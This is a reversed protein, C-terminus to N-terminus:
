RRKSLVTGQDGAAWLVGNRDITISHLNHTTSSRESTWTTGDFHVITGNNGVAWLEDGEGTIDDLSYAGGSMATSWANGNWHIVTGISGVAWVNDGDTGWVARLSASQIGTDVTLWESGDWHLATADDGVAWFDDVAFGWVDRLAVNGPTDIATWTGAAQTLALGDNGVIWTSGAAGHVSRLWTDGSANPTADTWQTGDFRMVTGATGVAWLMNGDGWIGYLARQTPPMTLSWGNDRHSIVEDGAIWLTNSPDVFTSLRAARSGASLTQRAGDLWRQMVGGEAVALVDNSGVRAAGFFTATLNSAARTWQGNAYSWVKGDDGFAWASPTVEPAGGDPTAADGVVGADTVNSWMSTAVVARAAGVLGVSAESWTTGDWHTAGSNGVAWIDDANLGQIAFLSAGIPSAAETWTDGDFHLITGSLGVAWVDDNTSGWLGRLGLSTPITEVSFSDGNFHFMRGNDGAFWVDDAAAGWIARLTRRIPPVVADSDPATSVESWTTGDFHIVVGTEGAAWIDDNAIGFVANLNVDTVQPARSWGIGDYHLVVGGEGVAWVNSMTSAWVGLLTHGQPHPLEWCWGDESCVDRTPPPIAADIGADIDTGSDFPVIADQAADTGATGADAPAGDVNGECGTTLTVAVVNLFWALWLSTRM